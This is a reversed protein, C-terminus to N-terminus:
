AARPGAPETHLKGRPAHFTLGCSPTGEIGLYGEHHLRHHTSCLTILNDPTNPGGDKTKRLHHLDIFLHRTCGPVVCRHHDRALVLRRLKPTVSHLHLGLASSTERLVAGLGGRRLLDTLAARHSDPHFAAGEGASQGGHTLQAEAGEAQGVRTLRREAVGAEPYRPVVPTAPPTLGVLEPDCLACDRVADSVPLV